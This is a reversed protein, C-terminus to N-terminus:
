SPSKVSPQALFEEVLAFHEPWSTDKFSQLREVQAARLTSDSRAYDRILELWRIGDHPEAYDPIDGAFEKIAPLPSSIVPTGAALAEQVPMGFGEAYSPMLLARAGKLLSIVQEDSANNIELIHPHIAECRELMDVVQECEWGRRGVVVLQPIENARYSMAMQRWLALLLLHNKRPEITGLVVFYPARLGRPLAANNTAPLNHGLPAVLVPPVPLNEREAFRRVASATCSSNVIIGRANELTLRIRKAHAGAESPRQYEPFDIPILDHIFVYVHLHKRRIWTWTRRNSLWTHTSVIVTSDDAIGQGVALWNLLIHLRRQRNNGAQGPQTGRLLLDLWRALPLRKLETRRKVCFGGGHRQAWHAYEMNVRDIGTHSTDTLHRFLLRTVDVYLRGMFLHFPGISRALRPPTTAADEVHCPPLTEPARAFSAPRM